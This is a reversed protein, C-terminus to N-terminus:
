ESSLTGKVVDTICLYYQDDVLLVPSVCQFRDNLSHFVIGLRELFVMFQGARYPMNQKQVTKCSLYQLETGSTKHSSVGFYVTNSVALVANHLKNIGGAVQSICMCENVLQTTERDCALQATVEEHGYTGLQPRNIHQM